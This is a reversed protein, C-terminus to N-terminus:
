THASEHWAPRYGAGLVRVVAPPTLVDVSGSLSVERVERYGAFGWRLLRGANKVLVDEGSRFMAGDPLAEFAMPHVRKARGCRREADLVADMGGARPMDPSLGARAWTAQFARAETRRCEFCPRHGAALASVEDLFFLETYGQGMVQRHSDRFATRCCIWARSRWRARALERTHPDHFRGGRNGMFMGRMPDAHIEGDPSVRNQLTM